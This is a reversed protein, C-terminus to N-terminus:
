ARPVAIPASIPYGTRLAEVFADDTIVILKQVHRREVRGRIHQIDSAAAPLGRAVGRRTRTGPRCEAHIQGGGHDTERPAQCFLLPHVVHPEQLGVCLDMGERVPVEVDGDASM